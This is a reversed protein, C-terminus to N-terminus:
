FLRRTCRRPWTSAPRTTTTASSASTNSTLDAGIRQLFDLIASREMQRHRELGGRLHPPDGPLNACRMCSRLAWPKRDRIMGALELRYSAGDIEVIEDESYYANFPFPRTILSEPFEPALRNPNFLWAQAGDNWQSMATLAKQVGEDRDPRM